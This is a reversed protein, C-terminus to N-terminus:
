RLLVSVVVLVSSLRGLTSARGLCSTVESALGTLITCDVLLLHDVDSGEVEALEGVVHDLSESLTGESCAELKDLLVLVQDELVIAFVLQQTKQSLSERVLVLSASEDVEARRVQNHLVHVDVSSLLQM